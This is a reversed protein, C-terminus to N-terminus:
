LIVTTYNNQIYVKCQNKKGETKLRMEDFKTKKFGQGKQSEGPYKHETKPQLGRQTYELSYHKSQGAKDSRHRSREGLFKKYKRMQENVVNGNKTM